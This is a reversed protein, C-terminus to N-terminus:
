EELEVAFVKRWRRISNSTRLAEEMEKRKEESRTILVFSGEQMSGLQLLENEYFMRDFLSGATPESISNVHLRVVRRRGPDM